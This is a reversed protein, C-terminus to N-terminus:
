LGLSGLGLLMMLDALWAGPNVVGRPGPIQPNSGACLPWHDVRLSLVGFETKAIIVADLGEWSTSVGVTDFRQLMIDEHVSSFVIAQVHIQFLFIEM